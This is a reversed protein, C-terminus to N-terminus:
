MAVFYADTVEFRSNRRFKAKVPIGIKVRDPKVGLLRSLFLTHVGRFEVLILTFPTEKLFSESGFFCTTFTHVKGELPLEMWETKAGCEICHARPTAFKYQCKTCVSGLLKGKSLGAFFPSDQAYSHIYDVEYHWKLIIPDVSYLVNGEESEPLHTKKATM